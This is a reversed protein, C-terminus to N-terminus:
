VYSHQQEHVWSGLLAEKTKAPLPLLGSLSCHLMAPVLSMRNRPSARKKGWSHSSESKPSTQSFLFMFGLKVSLCHWPNPFYQSPCFYSKLDQLMIM